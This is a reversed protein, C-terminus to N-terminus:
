EQPEELEEPSIDIDNDIDDHVEPPIYIPPREEDFREYVEAEDFRDEEDEDDEGEGNGEGEKKM